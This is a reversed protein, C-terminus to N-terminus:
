AGPQGTHPLLQAADPPQDAQYASLVNREAAGPPYPVSAFCEPGALHPLRCIPVRGSRQHLASLVASFSLSRWYKLDSVQNWQAVLLHLCVCALSELNVPHVMNWICRLIVFIISGWTLIINLDSSSLFVVFISPMLDTLAWIHIDNNKLYGKNENVPVASSLTGILCNEDTKDSENISWLWSASCLSSFHTVEM